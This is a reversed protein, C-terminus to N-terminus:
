IRAGAQLGLVFQPRESCSAPNSAMVVRRENPRVNIRCTM